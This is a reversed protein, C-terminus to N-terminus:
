GTASTALGAPRGVRSRPRARVGHGLPLEAGRPLDAEARLLGRGHLPRRVRLRGGPRRRPSPNTTPVAVERKRAGTGDYVNLSAHGNASIWAPGEPFFALGWANLLDPDAVNASVKTLDDSVINVEAVRGEVRTRHAIGVESLLTDVAAPTGGGSSSTQDACAVGLGAFAM